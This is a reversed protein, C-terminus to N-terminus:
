SDKEIMSLLNNYEESQEMIDLEVKGLLEPLSSPERRLSHRGITQVFAILSNKFQVYIDMKKKLSAAAKEYDPKCESRASEPGGQNTDYM